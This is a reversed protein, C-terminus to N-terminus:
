GEALSQNVISTIWDAIIVEDSILRGRASPSGQKCNAAACVRPFASVGACPPLQTLQWCASKRLRQSWPFTKWGCCRSGEPSPQIPRNAQGGDVRQHLIFHRLGTIPHIVMVNPASLWPESHIPLPIRQRSCMNWLLWLQELRLLGFLGKQLYVLGWKFSCNLWFICIRDNDVWMWALPFYASTKYYVPFVISNELVVSTAPSKNSLM